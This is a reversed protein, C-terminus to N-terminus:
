RRPCATRSGSRLRGDAPRLRRAPVLGPVVLQAPRARASSCAGADRTGLAGRPPARALARPRDQRRLGRRVLGLSQDCALVVLGGALIPSAGMGYVNDFPGLPTRWLERGTTTTPWSARLRRLLGRRARRGGGREALGARQPKDLKERRPRPAERRWLERGSAAARPVAGAPRDGEYATLFLREGFLMPSSYGPPVAVKWVRRRPTSRPRCRGATPSVQATRARPLAAWDAAGLPARPSRSHSRLVATRRRM